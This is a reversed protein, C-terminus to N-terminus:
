DYSVNEYRQKTVGNKYIETLTRRAPTGITIKKKATDLELDIKLLPFNKDILHPTSTCHILQGVRFSTYEPNIYHLEAVDVTITLPDWQQDTLWQEAKEKLKERSVVDFEVVTSIRGYTSVAESDIYDMGGNIQGITLASGGSTRGIPIISTKIDAGSMVQSLDLINLAFQAPQDGVESLSKLWDIYNVGNERRLFLYGGEAEVCMSMLCEFTSEYNLKRYIYTDLIDVTGVTFRRNVDTVQNNHNEILTKFFESILISNYEAPRQISDNFFALAGECYIEKQNLFDKSIDLPRGFFILKDEEYVEITQNLMTPLDYYSHVVPMKFSFSGATNLEISLSPNVLSLSVGEDYISIGDLYVRYIM